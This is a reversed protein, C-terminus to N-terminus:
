YTLPPDHYVSLSKLNPQLRPECFGLDAFIEDRLSEFAKQQQRQAEFLSRDGDVLKDL